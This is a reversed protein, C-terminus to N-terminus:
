STAANKQNREERPKQKSRAGRGMITKERRASGILCDFGRLAPSGKWDLDTFFLSAQM